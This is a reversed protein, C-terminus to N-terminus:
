VQETASPGRMPNIATEPVVELNVSFLANMLRADRTTQANVMDRALQHVDNSTMLSAGSATSPASRAKGKKEAALGRLAGELQRWSHDQMRLASLSLRAEDRVQGASLYTPTDAGRGVLAEVLEQTGDTGVHPRPARKQGNNGSPRVTRVSEQSSSSAYGDADPALEASPPLGSLVLALSHGRTASGLSAGASLKSSRSRDGSVRSPAAAADHAVPERQAKRLNRVASRLGLQVNHLTAFWDQAQSEFDQLRETDEQSLAGGEM